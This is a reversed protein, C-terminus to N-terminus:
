LAADVCRLPARVAPNVETAAPGASGDGAGLERLGDGQGARVEADARVAAGDLRDCPLRVRKAEREGLRAVAERDRGRRTEVDRRQRPTVEHTVRVGGGARQLDGRAVPAGVRNGLRMRPPLFARLIRSVGFVVAVAVTGGLAIRATPERGRAPREEILVVRQRAQVTVVEDAFRRAVDDMAREDFSVAGRQFESACRALLLGLEGGGRVLPAM